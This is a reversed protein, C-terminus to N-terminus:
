NLFTKQLAEWLLKKKVQDNELDALAHSFVIPVTGLTVPNYLTFKEHPLNSEVRSAFSLIYNVQLTQQLDEFVANAGSLNNVYAVDDPKLGIATLIKQLFQLGPLAMFESAPLTVLITIGKQNQGIVKYNSTAAVAEPKPIKPLAPTPKISEPTETPEVIPTREAQVETVKTEPVPMAKDEDILFVTETIFNKLFGNSLEEAQLGAM